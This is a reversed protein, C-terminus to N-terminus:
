LRALTDCCEKGSSDFELVMASLECGLWQLKELLM